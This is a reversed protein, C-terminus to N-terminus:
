QAHSLIEERLSSYEKASDSNPKYEFITNHLSIAERLAVRSHIMTKFVKDNFKKQIIEM